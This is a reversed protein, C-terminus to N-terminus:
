TYEAAHALFRYAIASYTAVVAEEWLTGIAQLATVALSM